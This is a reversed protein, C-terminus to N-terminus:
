WTRSRTPSSAAGPRGAAARRRRAPPHRDRRGVLDRRGRPRARRPDQGLPRPGLRRPRPRGLPLPRLPALRRDRGPLARRRDGRGLARRPDRGAARDSLQRSEARRAQRPREGQRAEEPRRQGGRPLLRRDGQRARGPPRDRRRALLPRRRPDRPRPHRDGPRPHDGRDALHQRRAPLDPRAAGRLGDGRRAGRRAPRGSPPRRLPRPRPDDGRQRGGAPPRRAPRADHGQHPGLRDAPATRRVAGVPLPRGAHRARERAARPLARRLAPGLPGAERGRRDGVRRTRGDLGPAPRARRAPEAPHRDGRDGRHADPPRGGRVRAPRRPVQPLDAGELGRRPHPRRPRSAAAGRTVSKPSEVQIVLDVAGMDIGLELSSTAVLCPLEGSKLLEEVLAREEHSLSGHHARAIEAPAESATRPTAPTSPQRCSTPRARRQADRQPAQRDARRRAPQQRLRDDLQARPGAPAARSLDGALDLPHQDGSRAVGRDPGPRHARALHQTRTPLRAPTPGTAVSTTSRARSSWTRSRSSSRSTSSRPSPRTSSRASAGQEWSSTASASSRGSPRRSASGSSRSTPQRPPGTAGPDACIPAESSPAVAHIEDVIVAEVGTLIERAQSSIMLYLSEPTTILIDPPERRMARRESQPTDGTRLAVSIPAGIGQLPARLNREIDYSLAKLPSIYVIRVGSGLREPERALRDIGWLFAALTKGSGTPACILTHAGSAIAPWGAAQAPTPAEFSAQFWKRVPESFPELPSKQTASTSM